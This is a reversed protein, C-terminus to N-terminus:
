KGIKGAFFGAITAVLTSLVTIAHENRFSEDIFVLLIFPAAIVAFVICPFYKEYFFKKSEMKRRHTAEDKEMDKDHKDKKPISPAKSHSPQKEVITKDNNETTM